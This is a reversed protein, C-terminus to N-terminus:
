QAAQPMGDRSKGDRLEGGERANRKGFGHRGDRRAGFVSCGVQSPRVPCSSRRFFDLEVEGSQAGSAPESLQRRAIMMDGTVPAMMIEIRDVVPADHIASALV